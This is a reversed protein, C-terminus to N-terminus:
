RLKFIFPITVLCGIPITGELAPTFTTQQIAKAIPEEFVEADKTYVLVTQVQGYRNLYVVARITGGIGSKRAAEPYIVKRSIENIDVKPESDRMAFDGFRQSQQVKSDIKALDDKFGQAAKANVLAIAAARYASRAIAEHQAKNGDNLMALESHVDALIGYFYTATTEIGMGENVLRLATLLRSRAIEPPHIFEGIRAHPSSKQWTTNLLTQALLYRSYASNSGSPCDTLISSLFTSAITPMDLAYFLKGLRLNAVCYLTSDKFTWDMLASVVNGTDTLQLARVIAGQAKFGASDMTPTKVGIGALYVESLAIQAIANRPFREIGRRALNLASDWQHLRVYERSLNQLSEIKNSDITYAQQAAYLSSDQPIRAACIETQVISLLVMILITRCLFKYEM